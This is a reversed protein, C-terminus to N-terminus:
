TTIAPFSLNPFGSPPFLFAWCAEPPFSPPPFNFPDSGSPHGLIRDADNAFRFTLQFISLLEYPAAPIISLLIYYLSSLFVCAREGKRNTLIGCLFPSVFVACSDIVKKCDLPLMEFFFVLISLGYSALCLCTLLSPPLIKRLLLMFQLFSPPLALAPSSRPPNM